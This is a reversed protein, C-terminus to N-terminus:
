TKQSARRYHILKRIHGLEERIVRAIAGSKDPISEKLESFFVVSDKEFSLALTIADNLSTISAVRHAIVDRNALPHSKIFEKLYAQYEKDASEVKAGGLDDQIKKFLKEHKFEEDALYQFLEVIKPRDFKKISEIYFEYGNKEIVIAFELIENVDLLYGM